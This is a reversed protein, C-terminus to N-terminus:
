LMVSGYFDKTGGRNRQGEAEMIKYDLKIRSLHCKTTKM